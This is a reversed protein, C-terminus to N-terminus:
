KHKKIMRYIIMRYIIMGLGTALYIVIIFIDIYQKVLM